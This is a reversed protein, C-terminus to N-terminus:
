LPYSKGLNAYGTGPLPLDSRFGARILGLESIGHKISGVAGPLGSGGLVEGTGAWSVRGRPFPSWPGLHGENPLIEKHDDGTNTGKDKPISQLRLPVLGPFPTPRPHVYLLLFPVPVYPAMMLLYGPSPQLLSPELGCASGTPNCPPRHGGALGGRPPLSTFLPGPPLWGAEVATDAVVEESILGLQAQPLEIQLFTVSSEAFLGRQALPYLSNAM